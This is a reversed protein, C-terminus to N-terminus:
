LNLLQITIFNGTHGSDSAHVYVYDGDYLVLEDDKTPTYPFLVKYLQSSSTHTNPSGVSWNSISANLM